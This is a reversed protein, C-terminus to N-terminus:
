PEPHLKRRIAEPNPKTARPIVPKPVNMKQVPVPPKGTIAPNHFVIGTPGIMTGPPLAADGGAGEGSASAGGIGPTTGGGAAAGGTAAGASAAGASTAAGGAAAHDTAVPRRWVWVFLGLAM